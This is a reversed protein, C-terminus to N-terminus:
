IVLLVKMKSITQIKFIKTSLIEGWKRMGYGSSLPLVQYTAHFDQTVDVFQKWTCCYIILHYCDDVFFVFNFYFYIKCIGLTENLNELLLFSEILIDISYQILHFFFLIVNMIIKKPKMVSHQRRLIWNFM